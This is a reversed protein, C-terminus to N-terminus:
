ESDERSMKIMLNSKALSRIAPDIMDDINRIGIKDGAPNFDPAQAWGRTSGFYDKGPAVRYAFSTTSGGVAPGSFKKYTKSFPFPAIGNMIDSDSDNEMLDLRMKTFSSRDTRGPASSKAINSMDIKRAIQNFLDEDDEDFSALEAQPEDYPYTTPAPYSMGSSKTTAIGYGAGSNTDGLRNHVVRMM